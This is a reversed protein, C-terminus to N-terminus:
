SQDQSISPPFDSNKAVFEHFRLVEKVNWNGRDAKLGLSQFFKALGSKMAQQGLHNATTAPVYFRIEHLIKDIREWLPGDAHCYRGNRRHTFAPINPNVRFTEVLSKPSATCHYALPVPWFGERELMEVLWRLVSRRWSSDDVGDMRRCRIYDENKNGGLHEELTEKIEKRIAKLIDIRAHGMEVAPYCALFPPVAVKRLENTFCLHGIPDALTGSTDLQSHFALQLLMYTYLPEHGLVWFIWLLSELDETTENIFKRDFWYSEMNQVWRSSWDVFLHVLDYKDALVTLNHLPEIDIDHDKAYLGYLINITTQMARPDDNPLHVDWKVKDKEVEAGPSYLAFGFAPSAGALVTSDIHFCIANDYQRKNEPLDNCSQLTCKQRGVLLLMDGKTDYTIVRHEVKPHSCERYKSLRRSAIQRIHNLLPAM